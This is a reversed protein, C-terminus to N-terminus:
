CQKITIVYWMMVTQSYKAVSAYVAGMMTLCGGEGESSGKWTGHRQWHHPLYVSLSLLTGVLPHGCVVVCCCGRGGISCLHCPAGMGVVWSHDAM